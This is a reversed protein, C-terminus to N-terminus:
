SERVQRTGIPSPPSCTSNVRSDIGFTDFAREFRAANRGIQEKTPLPGKRALVVRNDRKLNYFTGFVAAYTVSEHAYLRSSSFTNAALVGHPTIAVRGRCFSEHSFHEPIYEHDFADLMVIDYRRRERLARKVFVRGDVEVVKM